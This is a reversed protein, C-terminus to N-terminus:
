GAPVFQIAVTFKVGGEAVSLQPVAVTVQVGAEPELKGSPVVVTLQTATSAAFLIDAAQLKVISTTSVVAGVSPAQGAM